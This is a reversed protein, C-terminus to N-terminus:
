YIKDNDPCYVAFVDIEDERYGKSKQARHASFRRTPFLVCGARLRGTKVQVKLLRHGLDVVLDYPAGNGFPLLVTFGAGIYATMIKAESINGKGNPELAFIRRGM